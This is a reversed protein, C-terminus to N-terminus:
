GLSLSLLLSLLRDVDRRAGLRYRALSPGKKGVKATVFPAIGRVAFADEDARDDGVYLASTVKLLRRLRLLMRGKDSAGEAVIEISEMGALVRAGALANAAAVAQRRQALSSRRLHLTLGLGKDELRAAAFDGLSKELERRWRAVRPARRAGGQRPGVRWESGHNGALAALPLGRLRSTLDGLARGSIVAVPERAALRGLLDLSETSMSATTRDAAIPALTGDFDFALLGRRRM